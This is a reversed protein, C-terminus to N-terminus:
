KVKAKKWRQALDSAARLYCIAQDLNWQVEAVIEEPTMKQVPDLVHPM